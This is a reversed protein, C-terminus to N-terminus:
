SKKRKFGTTAENRDVEESCCNKTLFELLLDVASFNVSYILSRSDRCCSVIGSSKLQKLHFSCTAAPRNLEKAIIGASLGSCGARVLMLFISLRAEHALASLMEITSQNDLTNEMQYNSIELLISIYAM